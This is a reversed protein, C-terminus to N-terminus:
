NWLGLGKMRETTKGNWDVNAQPNGPSPHIISAVIRSPDDNVSALKEEAYKGIGILAHPKILDIIDRLYSDCM